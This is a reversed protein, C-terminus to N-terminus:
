SFTRKLFRWPKGVRWGFTRRMSQIEDTLSQVRTELLDLTVGADEVSRLRGPVPLLEGVALVAFGCLVDVRFVTGAIQPELDLYLAPSGSHVVFVNSTLLFCNVRRLRAFEEPSELRIRVPEARGQVHCSLELFDLRVVCPHTSPRLVLEQIAPAAIDGVIASLGLRNRRPTGGLRADPDVDVGRAVEIVFPGTDADSSLADWELEGASAAAFLEAYRTDVRAALGAPWYLDSMSLGRLQEPSLHRLREAMRLDAIQEVRDSGQNEDHAWRGLLTAELETPALLQRMILPRLVAPASALSPLKDPVAVRYRAWERQFAEVGQRLAGAEVAQLRARAVPALVPQLKEDLAVQSGHEPLCTQELIEPTRTVAAVTPEPEGFDGLYGLTRMGAFANSAAGEHTALYLGTIAVRRGGLALVSNLMLQASGAWGLDVVFLEQAGGLLGDVYRLVRERQVRAHELVKANLAADDVIAAFLNHRVVPDDLRTDAHSAFRPLDGTGLGLTPLFEAVTPTRRRTVLRAFEDASAVALSAAGLVERNLWLRECRAPLGLYEGARDILEGLFHGERMFCHLQRAGLEAAREQVWEAFGTLVPGQVLAGAQWFPQLSPPLRDGEARAAVKGRLSSLEAPLTSGRGGGSGAQAFRREHALLAELQVPHREFHVAGIGSEQAPGIDTKENDGLHLVAGAPVGLEALVVEFLGAAKGRRHDSSTFIRDIAVRELGPQDLLRRLEAASFYTDSVAIVTKGADSAATLLEAVDLDPLVLDRELELEVDLALERGQPGQFLWDPLLEYIEALNVELDGFARARRSRAEREALRRLRVFSASELHRALQGRGRLRDALPAFAEHPEAVQRWLLTDFVDTSVVKVDPRSVGEWAARLRVDAGSVPPPKGGAPPRNEPAPPPGSASAPELPGTETSPPRMM